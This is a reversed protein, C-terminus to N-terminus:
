PIRLRQGPRLFNEGRLQDRNADYIDQWRNQTGYYRVSIRSLTDGDVVTHYRAAPIPQGTPLAAPALSTSVSGAGGTPTRATSAIQDLTGQAQRLRANLAANEQRLQAITATRDREFVALQGRLAAESSTLRDNIGTLEAITALHGENGQQVERLNAELAAKEEQLRGVNRAAETAAALTRNLTERETEWQLRAANLEDAQARARTLEERLGNEESAKSASLSRNADTLRRNAERAAQLQAAVKALEDAADRREQELTSELRAVQERVSQLELKTGDDARALQLSALAAEASKKATELDQKLSENEQTVAALTTQQQEFAKEVETLRNSVTAAKERDERRGANAAELSMLLSAAKEAERSMSLADKTLRDRDSQLQQARAQEHQLSAQLEQVQQLARELQHRSDEATNLTRAQDRLSKEALATRAMEQELKQQLDRRQEEAATMKSAADRADQQVSLAENRAAVLEASARETRLREQTLESELARVRANLAEIQQPDIVPADPARSPPPSQLKAELDSIVAKSAILEIRAQDLARASDQRAQTLTLREATLQQIQTKQAESSQELTRVRAQLDRTVRQLREAEASQRTLEGAAENARRTEVDLQDRLSQNSKELEAAYRTLEDHPPRVENLPHLGQESKALAAAASAESADAVSAAGTPEARTIPSSVEAASPGSLSAVQETRPISSDGRPIPQGRLQQLWRESETKQEPNLRSELAAQAPSALGNEAALKLWALGQAPDQSLNGRGEALMTGFSGQAPAFGKEAALRYLRAAEADNQAVGRGTEHMLGLNYIAPTFGSDVAHRYYTAAKAEDKPVGRGAEYTYGLTFYAEAVGNQAARELWERAKAADAEIGIGNEYLSALAFQAPGYGSNAAKTYFVQALRPNLEVGDGTEHLAGLKFQAPAYGRDAAYRYALVAEEVNGKTRTRLKLLEDALLTMSEVAGDAAQKRIRALDNEQGWAPAVALLAALFRSRSRPSLLYRSRASASPSLM